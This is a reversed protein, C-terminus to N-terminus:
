EIGLERRDLAVGRTSRPALPVQEVEGTADELGGAVRAPEARVVELDAVLFRSADTRELGLVALDIQAEAVIARLLREIQRAVEDTRQDEVTLGLRLRPLQALQADPIGVLIELGPPPGLRYRAGDVVDPADLLHRVDSALGLRAPPSGGIPRPPAPRPPAPRRVRCSRGTRRICRRGARDSSADCATRGSEPSSRRHRRSRPRSGPTPRPVARSRRRRSTGSPRTARDRRDARSAARGTRRATASRRASRRATRRARTGRRDRTTAAACASARPPRASPARTRRATAAT